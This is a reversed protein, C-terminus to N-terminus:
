VRERCSARGIQIDTFMSRVVCLDDVMEGLQPFVESVEIGSKGKKSFKFPSAMAVGNMGPIEQGDLKTLSPKPDWTDVHSPAGQAFIHVVRKAKAPLPPTKPLLTAEAEMAQASPAFLENGFLAALSLAGFGLGARHLFQRRTLFRDELRISHEQKYKDDQNM